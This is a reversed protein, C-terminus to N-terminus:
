GHRRPQRGGSKGCHRHGLLDGIEPQEVLVGSRVGSLTEMIEGSGNMKSEAVPNWDKRDPWTRCLDWM